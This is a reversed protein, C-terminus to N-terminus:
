NRTNTPYNNKNWEDFGGIFVYIKKFGMNFLEEGSLISIDCDLSSCYTVIQENKDLQNIVDVYNESGYFPINIAGKIHGDNFEEESRADIFKIGDRFLQLAFDLKIAKPANFPAGPDINNSKGETIPTINNQYSDISNSDLIISNKHTVSSDSGIQWDLIRDKRILNIGAPNFHNYVLSIIISVLIIFFIKSFIINM